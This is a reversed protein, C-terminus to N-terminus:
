LTRLDSFIGVRPLAVITRPGAETMTRQLAYRQSGAPKLESNCYSLDVCRPRAILHSLPRAGGTEKVM